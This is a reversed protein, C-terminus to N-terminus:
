WFEPIQIGRVIQDTRTTINRSVQSEVKGGGESTFSTVDTSRASVAVELIKALDARARNRADEQTDAQGRGVLYQNDPYKSSKGSVWDPTTPASACAFLTVSSAVISLWPKMTQGGSHKSDLSAFSIEKRGQPAHDQDRELQDPARRARAAGAQAHARWAAAAPAPPLDRGSAHVLQPHRCARDRGPRRQGPARAAGRRGLRQLQVLRRCRRVHGQRGHARDRADHDAADRRGADEGRDGPHEGGALDQGSAVLRR